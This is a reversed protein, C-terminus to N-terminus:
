VLAPQTKGGLQGQERLRQEVEVGHRARDLRRVAGDGRNTLVAILDGGVLRAALQIGALQQLENHLAAVQQRCQWM